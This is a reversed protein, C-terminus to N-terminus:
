SEKEKIKGEEKEENIKKKSAIKKNEKIYKEEAMKWKRKIYHRRNLLSLSSIALHFIFCFSSWTKSRKRGM